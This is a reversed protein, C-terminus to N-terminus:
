PPEEGDPLAGHDCGEGYHAGHDCGGGHHAGHDCGWGQRNGLKDELQGCAPPDDGTSLSATTTRTKHFRHGQQNAQNRQLQAGSKVITAAPKLM